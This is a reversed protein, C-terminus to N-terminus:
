YLGRAGAKFVAVVLKYSREDLVEILTDEIWSKLPDDGVHHLTDYLDGPNVPENQFIHNVDPELKSM